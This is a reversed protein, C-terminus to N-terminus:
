EVRIIKGTKGNQLLVYEPTIRTVRYGDLLTSGERIDQIQNKIAAAEDDVKLTAVSGDAGQAIGLLKFVPGAPAPPPLPLGAPEPPPLTASTLSVPVMHRDDNVAHLNSFVPLVSQPASDVKPAEAQLLPYRIPAPVIMWKNASAQPLSSADFDPQYDPELANNQVFMWLLAPLLAMTGLRLFRIVGGKKPPSPNEPAAFRFSTPLEDERITWPNEQSEFMAQILAKENSM